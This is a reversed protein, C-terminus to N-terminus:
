RADHRKSRLFAGCDEATLPRSILYGQVVDCREQELYQLQETTEVGEAIVKLKLSHAMAIITKVIEKEGSDTYSHQVFSKDIKLIDLPYKGLYSLSSYGTGFDDLAIRIGIDKLEQLKTMVNRENHIAINETIELTLFAPDLGSSAIANRVTEVLNQQQFQRGSMNVSITLDQHGEEQWLKTQRCAERITWLGIEVILGTEEAVPIFEVPSVFGLDPHNWRLLAEHGVINSTQLDVYPQYVLYLETRELARRLGSEILLRRQVEENMESSFVCYSAGGLEKVKFMANDAASILEDATLGDKPYCSIGISFQVALVEAEHAPHETQPHLLREALAIASEMSTNSLLILFEDGGFRYLNGEHPLLDLMWAATQGIFMDGARHGFLDNISKFRDIDIFLVAAQKFVDPGTLVQQMHENFAHRNYLGTLADHYAQYQIERNKDKLEDTYRRLRLSMVNIRESLVGIEDKRSVTLQYGIQGEAIRKVGHHIQQIPRIIVAAILYSLIFLLIITFLLHSLDTVLQDYMVEDVANYDAVISVVYPRDVQIPFFSKVVKKGNVTVSKIVQSNFKLAAQVAEADADDQYLYSGFAVPQDALKVFTQGSQETYNVPKGMNDPNFGTIELLSEYTELFKAISPEPGLNNSLGLLSNDRIYPNIIYDTTGDYYYGWKDVFSPDSSSVDLPGAWFNPLKQGEPITVMRQDFLQEFATYWYGWDKTSLNLEKPDSSRVGVIDDKTRVFLTMYSVGTQESLKALQENTVQAAKPPLSKKAVIAALRIKEGLMDEMHLNAYRAHELSVAIQRSVLKLRTQMEEMKSDRAALYSLIGHLILVASVTITIIMAVKTKLSM